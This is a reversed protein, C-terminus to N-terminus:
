GTLPGAAPARRSCEWRCLRLANLPGLQAPAAHSRGAPSPLLQQALRSAAITLLAEWASQSGVAHVAHLALMGPSPPEPEPSSLEPTSRGHVGPSRATQGADPQARRQTLVRLSAEVAPTLGMQEAAPTAPSERSQAPALQGSDASQMRLRKAAPPAADPLHATPQAKAGSSSPRAASAPTSGPPAAAAPQVRQRKLDPQDKDAQDANVAQQSGGQSGTGPRDRDGLWSDSDSSSALGADEREAAALQEALEAEELDAAPAADPESRAPQLAAAISPQVQRQPKAPSPLQRGTARVQVGPQATLLWKPPSVLAQTLLPRRKLLCFSHMQMCASSPSHSAPSTCPSFATPCCAAPRQLM